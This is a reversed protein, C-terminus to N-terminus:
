AAWARLDTDWWQVSDRGQRQVVPTVKPSDQGPARKTVTGPLRFGAGEHAMATALGGSFDNQDTDLRTAPV